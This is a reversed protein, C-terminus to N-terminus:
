EPVFVYHTNGDTDDLVYLGGVVEIEFPLPLALRKWSTPGGVCPVLEDTM